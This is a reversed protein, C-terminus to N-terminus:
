DEDTTDCSDSSLSSFLAFQLFFHLPSVNEDRRDCDRQVTRGRKCLMAMAASSGATDAAGISRTTRAVGIGIAVACAAISAVRGCGVAFGHVLRQSLICLQRVFDRGEGPFRRLLRAGTELVKSLADGRGVDALVQADAEGAQFTIHGSGGRGAAGGTRCAGSGLRQAQAFGNLGQTRGDIALRLGLFALLLCILIQFGRCVIGLRLHFFLDRLLAPGKRTIAAALWLAHSLNYEVPSLGFKIEFAAVRGSISEALM